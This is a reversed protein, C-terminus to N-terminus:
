EAVLGAPLGKGLISDLAIKAFGGLANADADVHKELVRAADIALPGVCALARAASSGVNEDVDDLRAVLDPVAPGGLERMAGIVRCARSRIRPTPSALLKRVSDLVGSARRGLQELAMSAAVAAKQDEGAFLGALEPAFAEGHEGLCGLGVLGAMATRKDPDNRLAMLASAFQGGCAELVEPPLGAISSVLPLRVAADGERIVELMAEGRAKPDAGGLVSTTLFLAASGRVSEREDRTAVLLAQLLRDPEEPALPERASSLDGLMGVIAVAEPAEPSNQALLADIARAELRRWEEDPLLARHVHCVVVGGCSGPPSPNQEELKRRDELEEWCAKQRLWVRTEGLTFDRSYPPPRRGTLPALAQAQGGADGCAGAAQM